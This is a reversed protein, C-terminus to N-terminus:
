TNASPDSFQAMLWEYVEKARSLHQAVEWDEVAGERWFSVQKDIDIMGSNRLPGVRPDLQRGNYCRGVGASGRRDTAGAARGVRM